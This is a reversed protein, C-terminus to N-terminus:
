WGLKEGDSVKPIIERWSTLGDVQDRARTMTKYYIECIKYM